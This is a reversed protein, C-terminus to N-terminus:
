VQIGFREAFALVATRLAGIAEKLKRAEKGAEREWESFRSVREMAQGGHAWFEPYFQGECWAALNASVMSAHWGVRKVAEIIRTDNTFRHGEQAKCKKFLTASHRGAAGLQATRTSATPTIPDRLEPSQSRSRPEDEAFSQATQDPDMTTKLIELASRLVDLM